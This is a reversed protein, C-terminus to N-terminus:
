TSDTASSIDNHLKVLLGGLFVLMLMVNAAVSLYADAVRRYPMALLTLVAFLNSVVVALSLRIISYKRPILLVFGSLFIREVLVLM